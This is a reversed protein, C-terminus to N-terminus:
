SELDPDCVHFAPPPPPTEHQEGPQRELEAAVKRLALRWYLPDYQWNALLCRIKVSLDEVLPLNDPHQRHHPTDRDKTPRM